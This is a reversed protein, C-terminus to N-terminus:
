VTDWNNTVIDYRWMDSKFEFSIRTFNLAKEDSMEHVDDADLIKIGGFM